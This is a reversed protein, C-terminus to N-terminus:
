NMWLQAIKFYKRYFFFKGSELLQNLLGAFNIKSRSTYLRQELIFSSVIVFRINTITFFAFFTIMLSSLNLAWKLWTQKRCMTLFKMGAFSVFGIRKSSILGVSDFLFIFHFKAKPLRLRPLIEDCIDVFLKTESMLQRRCFNSYCISQYIFYFKKGYLSIELHISIFFLKPIM